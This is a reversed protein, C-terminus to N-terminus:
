IIGSGYSSVSKVVPIFASGVAKAAGELAKPKVPGQSTVEFIIPQPTKGKVDYDETNYFNVSGVKKIYEQKAEYHPPNDEDDKIKKSSAIVKANNRKYNLTDLSTRMPIPNENQPRDNFFSWSCHHPSLFIDWDLAKNNVDNRYRKTRDLIQKWTTHDSDGGFMALTAFDTSNVSSKFRAQFVISASNKDKDTSNMDIKFPAHIFISFTTQDKDNFRSVIQGPTSRLHDLDDYKKSNDYGIIRIRNGRLDKDPHKDRHLKLRREAEIQYADEDDNTYQEAIMPSFWMADLRILGDNKHKDKYDKPNGQYFNTKFGRCHDQDGHTLIFVDVYPIGNDKQVSNLLDKKVDFMEPDTDGKSSERINCDVVITTKDELTILSTDGNSVPYYKISANAM